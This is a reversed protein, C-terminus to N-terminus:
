SIMLLSLVAKGFPLFIFAPELFVSFSFSLFIGTAFDPGPSLRFSLITLSVGTCFL